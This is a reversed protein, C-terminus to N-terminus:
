RKSTWEHHDFRQKQIEDARTKEFDALEASIFEVAMEKKLKAILSNSLQELEVRRAGLDNVGPLEPAAESRDLLISGHQLIAGDIRRQASGCIKHGDLIVDGEARRLFCLFPEDKRKITEPMLECKRSWDSLCAILARHVLRYLAQNDKSWNSNGPVCLSYTLERDHVIAGGGTARRVIPSQASAEHTARTSIKQFYGLSVTAPAWQYLRFTAVENATANELIAQDTAMNWSGSCKGDVILRAQM